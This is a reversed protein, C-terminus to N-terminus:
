VAEAADDSSAEAGLKETDTTAWSGRNGEHSLGVVTCARWNLEGHDEYPTGITAVNQIHYHGHFIWRPQTKSVIAALMQRNEVTEPYDDKINPIQVGYPCDHSLLVDVPGGAVSKEVDEPRIMETPWWLTNAAKEERLRYEKDISFAGGCSLFSVGDWEWRHGRPSYSIRNSMPVFGEDDTETYTEWLWPHNEHNGDLWYLKGEPWLDSMSNELSAIMNKRSGYMNPIERHPWYGFDGLQFIADCDFRRALEMLSRLWRVNGHSDGAFLLKM